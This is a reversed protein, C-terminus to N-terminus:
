IASSQTECLLLWAQSLTWWLHAAFPVLAYLALASLGAVRVNGRSLFM